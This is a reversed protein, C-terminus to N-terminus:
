VTKETLFIGYKEKLEQMIPENLAPDMPAQIGTQNIRGDLVMITAVGCPVGVLKAM